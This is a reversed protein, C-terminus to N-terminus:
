MMTSCKSMSDHIQRAARMKEGEFGHLDSAEKRNM